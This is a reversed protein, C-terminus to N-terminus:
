EAEMGIWRDFRLVVLICEPVSNQFTAQGCYGRVLKRRTEVDLQHTTADVVDGTAVQTGLRAHADGVGLAHCLSTHAEPTEHIDRRGVRCLDEADIRALAGKGNTTVRVHRYQVQAWAPAAQLFRVKVNAVVARPFTPRDGSPRGGRNQAPPDDSSIPFENALHAVTLKQRPLDVRLQETSRHDLLLHARLHM